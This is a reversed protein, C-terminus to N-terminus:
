IDRKERIGAELDYYERMKDEIGRTPLLQFSVIGKIDNM